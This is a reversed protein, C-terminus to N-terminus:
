YGLQGAIFRGPMLAFSGAAATGIMTGIMWAAHARVRGKRISFIAAAMSFLTWVTLGHIWSFSGANLERIWFSSVTVFLM